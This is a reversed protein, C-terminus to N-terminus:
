GACAHTDLPLTVSKTVNTVYKQRFRRSRLWDGYRMNKRKNGCSYNLANRADQSLVNGSKTEFVLIRGDKGTRELRKGVEGVVQCVREYPAHSNIAHQTEPAQTYGTEQKESPWTYREMVIQRGEVRIFEAVIWIIQRRCYRIEPLAFWTQDEPCTSWDRCSRCISVAV